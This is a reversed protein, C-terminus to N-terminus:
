APVAEGRAKAIARRVHTRLCDDSTECFAARQWCLHCLGDEGIRFDDLDLVDYAIQILEPAAAILAADAEVHVDGRPFQALGLSAIAHVEGTEDAKGIYRLGSSRETWTTWPGPTHTPQERM